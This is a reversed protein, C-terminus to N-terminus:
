LNDACDNTISNDRAIHQSGTFVHSVRNFGMCTFYLSLNTTHYREEFVNYTSNTSNKRKKRRIAPVANGCDAKMQEAIFVTSAM